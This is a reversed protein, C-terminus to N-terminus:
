DQAEFCLGNTHPKKKTKWPSVRVASTMQYAEQPEHLIAEVVHRTATGTTVKGKREM